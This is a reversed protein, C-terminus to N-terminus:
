PILSEQRKELQVRCYANFEEEDADDEDEDDEVTERQFLKNNRFDLTLLNDKLVINSFEDWGYQKRPITNFVIRDDAFGIELNKKAQRELLALVLFLLSLWPLWPMSAWLIATLFLIYSYTVRKNRKGSRYLNWGVLLLILLAGPLQILRKDAASFYEMLFLAASTTSLLISFRDVLRRNTNQLIVLYNYTM